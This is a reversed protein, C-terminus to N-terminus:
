SNNTKPDPKQNSRRNRKGHGNVVKDVCKKMTAERELSEKLMEKVETPSM